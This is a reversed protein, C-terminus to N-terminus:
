GKEEDEVLWPDIGIEYDKLIVRVLVKAQEVKIKGNENFNELYNGLVSRLNETLDNKLKEFKEINEAM